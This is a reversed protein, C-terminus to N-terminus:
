GRRFLLLGSVAVSVVLAAVSIRLGLYFSRPAYAFEVTHQGAGLLVGQFAYDVPFVEARQGDIRASWGPYYADSLVLVCDKRADAQVTVRTSTKRVVSASGIDGSSENPLPGPVARETLVERRPDYQPSALTSFMTDLDSVVRLRGVLSARPM